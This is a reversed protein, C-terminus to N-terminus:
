SIFEDFTEQRIIGRDLMAQFHLKKLESEVLQELPVFGMNKNEERLRNEHADKMEQYIANIIYHRIFYKVIDNLVEINLYDVANLFDYIGTKSSSYIKELLEFDHKYHITGTNFGPPPYRSGSADVAGNEYPVQCVNKKGLRYNMFDLISSFVGSNINKVPTENASESDDLCNKLTESTVAQEYRISFVRGDSTRIDVMKDSPQYGTIMYEKETLPFKAGFKDATRHMIVCVAEVDGYDWVKKM